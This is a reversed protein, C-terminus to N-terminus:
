VIGPSIDLLCMILSSSITFIVFISLNLGENFHVVIEIYLDGEGYDYETKDETEYYYSVYRVLCVGMAFAMLVALVIILSVFYDILYNPKRIIDKRVKM